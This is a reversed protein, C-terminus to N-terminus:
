LKRWKKNLSNLWGYKEFDIKDKNFIISEIKLFLRQSKYIKSNKPLSIKGKWNIVRHWLINTDDPLNHLAYGVLRAQKILGSLEAVQGYTAVKGKPIQKVTQWILKYSAPITNKM